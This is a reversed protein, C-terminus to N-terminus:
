VNFYKAYKHYVILASTSCEPDIQFSSTLKTGIKSANLLKFLKVQDKLEPCAPYGFSYRLGQFKKFGLEDIILKNSYEALAEATEVALGHLYLAKDYEGKDNLEKCVTDVKNGVTVVQLAIVDMKDENYYDSLCLNEEKNQRPFTFKEIEKTLNAPDYIILDNGSKRCPFYGYIIKPRLINKDISDIKLKELIPIYKEKLAKDNESKTLKIGWHLKFIYNLNLYPYVNNLDIDDIIKTGLFPIMPINKSAVIKSKNSNPTLKKKTKLILNEEIKYKQMLDKKEKSTLIKVFNLGDFANRAYFVGGPYKKNKVYSIEKTYKSNISAGGVIVPIDLNKNNLEEIILKMQKSTSVLLASLGICDAKNKIAEDIIKQVPVQKGLDIVEYGNNSVITKVLNKGIDHVDGYVTALVMKGKTYSDDKDLYQELYDVSKKMIGAAELVFPLIYEGRGFKEGVEKMAPILIKNIIDVASYKERAEDITEFLKEYKRKIIKNALKEEIPLDIEEVVEDDFTKDEYYEIVKQLADNHKNFILDEFLIKEENSIESYPIIHKSNIIAADLGYKIAHYLFISNLVIRAQKRIGFSINSIGLNTKVGPLEEKIEKIANLTEIASIKYKEQGTTVPFTLVDILLDNPDLGYENTYIKHIKKAIELKKDATHAMGDEDITLGIVSAGFEKVLKLIEHIKKGDGELNISNIMAKGPYLMLAEKMVIPKTTDIVLPAQVSNVLKKICKKMYYTESEELDNHGVSLDLLHAGSDIQARALEIISEYDEKKLLNLFKKSGTANTTEGIILPKPEQNLEVHTMGSSVSYIKKATRKIPSKGDFEKAMIEVFKPNSGCCAGVINIGFEYVFKKMFPLMEEPKMPYVTKGSDNYPIGANPIVSIMKNTHNCLYRINDIMEKPGTSCQVGIVDIDFTDLTTLVSKIDTGLLMKGNIDYTIQAVIPLIKNRLKLAKKIGVITARTELIDQQTEVMFLDAGGDILGLAQEYFNDVLELYTIKSLSEDTSSPLFGSPGITGKVFRPKINSYKQAVKKCIQAAAFNIEYTKDKSLGFEVIKLPSATFSNTQVADSGAIFYQETVSEIIQPKTLNLIETYGPAPGYDKEPIDMAGILAGFSGDFVMIKKKALELFKSV